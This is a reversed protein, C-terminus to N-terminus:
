PEHVPLSTNKLVSKILKKDFTAFAEADQSQALHIADAFDMGNKYWDVAISIM